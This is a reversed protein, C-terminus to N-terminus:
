KMNTNKPNKSIPTRKKEKPGGAGEKRGKPQNQLFDGCPLGNAPRFFRAVKKEAEGDGLRDPFLFRVLISSFTSFTKSKFSYWKKQQRSGSGADCGESVLLKNANVLM